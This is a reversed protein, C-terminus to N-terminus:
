AGRRRTTRLSPGRRTPTRSRIPRPRLLEHAVALEEQQIDSLGPTSSTCGVVVTYAAHIGSVNMEQHYAAFDTCSTMMGGGSPLTVTTHSPFYVVYIVSDFSGGAPRPVAGSTIWGALTTKLVDDSMTMPANSSLEGVGLISGAGVGYEAGAQTLWSSGVLWSAHAELTARNADDMYTVPVLTPNAFVPGGNNPVQPLPPHAAPAFAGDQPSGADMGLADPAGTDRGVGGDHM